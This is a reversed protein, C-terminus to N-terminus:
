VHISTTSTKVIHVVMTVHQSRQKLRTTGNQTTTSTTYVMLVIRLCTSNNNDHRKAANIPITVAVEAHGGVTVGDQAAENDTGFEQGTWEESSV